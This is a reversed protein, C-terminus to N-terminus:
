QGGRRKSFRGVAMLDRCNRGCDNTGVVGSRLESGCGCLRREDACYSPVSADYNAACRLGYMRSPRGSRRRLLSGEDVNSCPFCGSDYNAACRLGYM